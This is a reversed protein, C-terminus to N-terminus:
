SPSSTRAPRELTVKMDPCPIGVLRHDDGLDYRADMGDRMDAIYRHADDLHILDSLTEM